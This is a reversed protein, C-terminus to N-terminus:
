HCFTAIGVGFFLTWCEVELALEKFFLKKKSCLGSYLVCLEPEIRPKHFVFKMQCHKFENKFLLSKRNMYEKKYKHFLRALCM